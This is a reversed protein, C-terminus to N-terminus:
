GFLRVQAPRIIRATEDDIVYRYGARAVKAIKGRQKSDDCNERSKLVEATKEQGRYDSMYKPEYREIGSSELTFILEDKVENLHAITMDNKLNEAKTNSDRALESLKEIRSDINDICRIVRLCFKRIISWDYGDQLKRVQDQQDAAYERIASVQETLERLTNDLGNGDQANNLTDTNEFESRINDDPGVEVVATACETGLANNVEASLESSNKEQETGSSGLVVAVKESFEVSKTFKNEDAQGSGQQSAAPEYWKRYNRNFDAWRSDVLAKIVRPPQTQQRRVQPTDKREAHEKTQVSKLETKKQRFMIRSLSKSLSCFCKNLLKVLLYLLYSSFSAAGVIGCLLSAFLGFEGLEKRAKYKKLENQWDQGYLVNAFPYVGMDGSALKELDAKLREKQERKLQVKTKTGNGNGNWSPIPGRLYESTDSWRSYKQMYEDLECDYKQRYQAVQQQENRENILLWAFVGGGGVSLFISIIVLKKIM